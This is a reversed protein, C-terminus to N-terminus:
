HKLYAKPDKEFSRKCGAACFYYRQGNYELLHHGHAIAVTMGCVPDIAEHPASDPEPRVRESHLQGRRFQVVEALISLAIEDPTVAGIDLGAPYKIRALDTEKFGGARLNDMVSAARTKSTVLAIYEAPTGLAAELAEEDYNGHSAVVIALAGSQPIEDRQLTDRVAYAAPFQEGTVEAGLVTVRYGLSSGIRTLAEAVALHGFIVLDPQPLHPEIYIELAGGSVCTLAVEFVGAQPRAGLTEPPCLSDRICM